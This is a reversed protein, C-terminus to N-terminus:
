KKLQKSIDRGAYMIRIISIIGKEDDPLYFIIYNDVPLFRLGMSHWPEDKYLAHRMPFEDLGKVEDMIRRTQDKATNPVLLEYAIYEYINRLDKRADTSYQIRYSM